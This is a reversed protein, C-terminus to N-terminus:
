AIWLRGQHDLLLDSIPGAPLGNDSGFISFRGDKYRGIGRQNFGIWIDGARDEQFSEALLDRLLPLGERHTMNRLANSARDWRALGTESGDRSMTSIWIDGRSDEYLSFVVPQVLGDKTTYRAIPRASSLESFTRVPPFVFIGETTGVWWQGSRAQLLF